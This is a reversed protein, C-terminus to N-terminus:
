PQPRLTPQTVFVPLQFVASGQPRARDFHAVADVAGVLAAVAPVWVYLGLVSSVAALMTCFLIVAQSLNYRLRAM